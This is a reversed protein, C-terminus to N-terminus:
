ARGPQALTPAREVSLEQRIAALLKIREGEVSRHITELELWSEDSPTDTMAEELHAARELLRGITISQQAVTDSGLLAVDGVADRLAEVAVVAQAVSGAGSIQGDDHRGGSDLPRQDSRHRLTEYAEHERDLAQRFQRYARIREDLLREFHQHQRDRHHLDAEHRRRAREGSQTIAVGAITFLGTALSAVLVSSDM